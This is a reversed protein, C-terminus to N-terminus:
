TTSAAVSAVMKSLIYIYIYTDCYNLLSCVGTSYYWIASKGLLIVVVIILVCIESSSATISVLMIM